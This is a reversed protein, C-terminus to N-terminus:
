ISRTVGVALPTLTRALGLAEAELGDPGATLRVIRQEAEDRIAAVLIGGPALWRTLRPAPPEILAHVIVRAFLGLGESEGLADAHIVRVGEVGFAALRAASEVALTHSREFSVVEGAIQAMLAAAYGSGAGIELVRMGPKLRLAEIMAATTSPPPATQGAGIPLAIDRVAIDAYRQPMFHSRPTRELARLVPVDSLGRQRMKLTFLARERAEETM